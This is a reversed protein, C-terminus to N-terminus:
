IGSAPSLPSNNISAFLISNTPREPKVVAVNLEPFAPLKIILLVLWNVSFSPAITEVLVKLVPSAPSKCTVVSLSVTSPPENIPAPVNSSPCPPFTEIVAKSETVIVPLELALSPSFTKLRIVLVASASAVPFAPSNITSVLFNIIASPACIDAEVSDVWPPSIVRLPNSLKSSRLPSIEADLRSPSAPSIIILALSKTWIDSLLLIADSAFPVPTAPKISILVM